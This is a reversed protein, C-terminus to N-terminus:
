QMRMPGENATYEKGSCPILYIDVNQALWLNQFQKDFM